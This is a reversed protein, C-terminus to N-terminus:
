WIFRYICSGPKRVAIYCLSCLRVLGYVQKIFRTWFFMEFQMVCGRFDFSFFFFFPIPKLVPGPIMLWLSALSRTRDSTFFYKLGSNRLRNSSILTKWERDFSFIAQMRSISKRFSILLIQVLTRPWVESFPLQVHSRFYAKGQAKYGLLKLRSITDLSNQM